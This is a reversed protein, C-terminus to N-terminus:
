FDGPRLIKVPTPPIVTGAPYALGGNRGVVQGGFKELLPYGLQQKPTFGATLSSKFDYLDISGTDTGL